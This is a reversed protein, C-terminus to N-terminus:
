EAIEYTEVSANNDEITVAYGNKYYIVKTVKGTRTAGTTGEGTISDDGQGITVIWAADENSPRANSDNLLNIDSILPIDPSVYRYMQHSAKVYPTDYWRFGNSDFTDSATFERIRYQVEFSSISVAIGNSHADGPAHDSNGDMMETIGSYETTVAQAAVYVERAEVIYAKGKADAVFGIMTPITFAAIVALIVLVVIIEVLTFGSDKKRIQGIVKM